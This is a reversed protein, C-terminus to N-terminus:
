VLLHPLYFCTLHLCTALPWCFAGLIATGFLPRLADDVIFSTMIVSLVLLVLSWRCGGALLELDCAKRFPLILILNRNAGVYGQVSSPSHSTKGAQAYAIGETM